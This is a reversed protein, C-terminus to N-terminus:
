VFFCEMMGKFEFLNGIKKLDSLGYVKGVEIKDNRSLVVKVYFFLLLNRRRFKKRVYKM